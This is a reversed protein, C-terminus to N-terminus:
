KSKKSKEKLVTTKATKKAKRRKCKLFLVSLPPLTLEVSQQFGHMAKRDTHIGDGNTIGSGGFEARDSSFIEAYTGEFPVGISYHERKVPLFNCVAIIEHGSADMRRFAIVSQTYDDNSIWSFGEWTFDIEWLPATNLYFRNLTKVFYQLQRHKEENLLGWDLETQYNWENWQGFETGMFILKKGPHAMMYCMFARVGAYKQDEDGPMKNLLSRKGYVVEDHSIPLIFNESFAYFFSFTVNDHNFPRYIPDLSMYHLMDNMWGMNWKYNFGLGGCYTPKSVMPWSTSEEAIMMVDPFLEFVSENLKQLFAVAELNEKGGNKNPIWEGDKRSYDLYLMSAVADVRIGDIHYKELWFVASSVLFSIVENRGFDFVLTGWEKHEGKRPDSYEYCPTGDFRALGSEDKPFHAPVWDMIVGIGARHLKDVFSMFQKPEGYRSTPAFYGTVQYGWSGDYPYETIPMLEIHTYGMEKLYPVLEDALKDYSFTNGDSYRRWSGMHIEYINVPQNYHKKAAKHKMWASDGWPYGEIDYYKSANGPRTEFHYAYPDSKFTQKGDASEVCFKYPQYQEMVFPLYCEWVGDSIKEMPYVGPKWDNFDGVVSVAEANPAWVRCVMCEKGDAVTKHTGMFEYAKINTGQHFLYLPLNGDNSAATIQM